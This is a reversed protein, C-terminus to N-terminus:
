QTAAVVADPVESVDVWRRRVAITFARIVLAGLPRDAVEYVVM